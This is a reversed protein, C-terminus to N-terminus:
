PKARKQAKSGAAEESAAEAKENELANDLVNLTRAPGGKDAIMYTQKAVNVQNKLYTHVSKMGKALYGYSERREPELQKIWPAETDFMNELLMHTHLIMDVHTRAEPYKHAIHRVRNAYEEMTLNQPCKWHSLLHSKEKEIQGSSVSPNEIWEVVQHEAGTAGKIARALRLYGEGDEPSWNTAAPADSM